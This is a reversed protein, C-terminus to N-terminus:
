LLSGCHNCFPLERPTEVTTNGNGLLEPNDFRNGIVRVFHTLGGHYVGVRKENRYDYIIETIITLVGAIKELRYNRYLESMYFSSEYWEIIMTKTNKVQVLKGDRQTKDYFYFEVIDDSFIPKGCWLSSVSDFTPYEEKTRGNGIVYDYFWQKEKDTLEEWKTDDCIGTFQGVTKPDVECYGGDYPLIGIGQYTPKWFDKVYCGYLWEGSHLGCTGRGRFLFKDFIKNDM